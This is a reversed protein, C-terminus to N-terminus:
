LSFLWSDPSVGCRVSTTSSTHVPRSSQRCTFCLSYMVAPPQARESQTICKILNASCHFRRVICREPWVRMTLHSLVADCCQYTCYSLNSDNDFGNWLPPFQSSLNHQKWGGLPPLLLFLYSKKVWSMPHWSWRRWDQSCQNHCLLALWWHPLKPFAKHPPCQLM